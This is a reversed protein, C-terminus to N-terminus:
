RVSLYAWLALAAALWFLGCSILVFRYTQARTWKPTAGASHTDPSETPADLHTAADRLRPALQAVGLSHNEARSPRAIDAADPRSVPQETNM